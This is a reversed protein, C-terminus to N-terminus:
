ALAARVQAASAKGHADFAAVWGPLRQDALGRKYSPRAQSAELWRAVHPRRDWLFGLHLDALRQIYPILAIDALSFADGGLWAREALGTEMQATLEDFAKLSATFRESALGKDIIDLKLARLVPNVTTLTRARLAEVGGANAALIHRIAIAFSVTACHPAHIGEDVQKTWLRISARDRASGPRLSPGEFADDIYECIVTSESLPAGDHVIAPVLGKPNIRRYWDSMQEQDDLSVLSLTFRIGKECAAILVKQACVSEGHHYITLM